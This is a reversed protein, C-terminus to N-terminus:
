ALYGDPAATGMRFEAEVEGNPYGLTYTGVDSDVRKITLYGTQFLLSALDMSRLEFTDFFSENVEIPSVDQPLKGATQIAKMTNVLLSKGFRRPRSLFWAKGTHLLEYVHRTKDVYICGDGVVTALEQRGLSLPKM